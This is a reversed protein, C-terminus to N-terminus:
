AVAKEMLYDDMVFGSGIDTCVDELFRFGARQYARIAIANAKNVRLQVRQCDLERAREETWRLAAAGLGRGHMEPLVYLKNIFVIDTGQPQEFSLYGVAGHAEAEILAFWVDRMNMERIMAGTEYWIALMYRIQAESIIGPYYEFWIRHALKQVIPLENEAIRRIRVAVPAPVVRRLQERSWALAAQWVDMDNAPSLRRLHDAIQDFTPEVVGEERIQELDGPFETEPLIEKALYWCAWARWTRLEKNPQVMRTALHQWHRRPNGIFQDAPRHLLLWAMAQYPLPLRQLIPEGGTMPSSLARNLLLICKAPYGLRWLSQAYRHAMEYFGPGRDKGFANIEAAEYPRAIEPLLPHPENLWM